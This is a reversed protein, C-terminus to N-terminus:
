KVGKIVIEFGFKQSIRNKTLMDLPCIIFKEIWKGWINVGLFSFFKHYKGFGSLRIISQTSYYGTMEIHKMDYREFMNILERHKFSKEYGYEYNGKSRRIYWKRVTHPFNYWNPVGVIITGGDKTVRYMEKFVDEYNKFHEIVGENFVVDFYKDQFSLNFINDIKFHVNTIGLKYALKKANNVLKPSIDVGYIESEQFDKTLAICFRGSGFGADLIKKDHKNIWKKYEAYAKAGFWDLQWSGNQSYLSDWINKNGMDNIM